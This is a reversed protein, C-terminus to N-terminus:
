EGKIHALDASECGQEYCKKAHMHAPIYSHSPLYGFRTCCPDLLALGGAQLSAPNYKPPPSHM